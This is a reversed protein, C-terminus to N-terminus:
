VNRRRKITTSPYCDNEDNSEFSDCFQTWIYNMSRKNDITTTLSQPYTKVQFYNSPAHCVFSLSNLSRPYEENPGISYGNPDFHFNDTSTSINTPLLWTLFAFANLQEDQLLARIQAYFCSFKADILYVIDGIQFRRDKSYLVDFLKFSTSQSLCKEPKKSKFALTKRNTRFTPQNRTPIKILPLQQSKTDTVKSRKTKTISSSSSLSSSSSAASQDDGNTQTPFYFGSFLCAASSTIDSSDINTDIRKLKCFRSTSKSDHLDRLFCNNCLLLDRAPVRWYVSTVTDCLRCRPKRPDITSRQHTRSM